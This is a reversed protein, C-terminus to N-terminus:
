HLGQKAKMLYECVEITCSQARDLCIESESSSLINYKHDSILLTGHASHDIHQFSCGKQRVCNIAFLGTVDIVLILDSCIANLHLQLFSLQFPALIAILIRYLIVGSM